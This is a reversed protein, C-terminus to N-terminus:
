FSSSVRKMLANGLESKLIQPSEVSGVPPLGQKELNQNMRDISASFEDIFRTQDLFNAGEIFQELVVQPDAGRTVRDLAQFLPNDPSEAGPPLASLAANDITAQAQEKQQEDLDAQRLQDLLSLGEGDAGGGGGGGGGGGSSAASARARAAELEIQALAKRAANQERQGVLQMEALQQSLARDREAEEQQRIIEEVALRTREQVVPIAGELQGFFQENTAAQRAIDEQFVGQARASDDIQAQAPAAAEAAAAQFAGPRSASSTAATRQLAQGVAAQQGEQLQGQTEQLKTMGASGQSALADLLAKKQAQTRETASSFASLDSM